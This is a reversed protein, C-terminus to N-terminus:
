PHVPGHPPRVEPAPAVRTRSRLQKPVLMAIKGKACLERAGRRCMAMANVPQVSTVDAESPWTRSPVGSRCTPFPCAAVATCVLGLAPLEPPLPADDAPAPGKGGPVRRATAAFGIGAPVPVEPASAAIGSAPVAGVVTSVCAPLPVPPPLSPPAPLM